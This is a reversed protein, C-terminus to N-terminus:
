LFYRTSDNRFSYPNRHPRVMKRRFFGFSLPFVGQCSNKIPCRTNKNENDLIHHYHLFVSNADSRNKGTYSVDSQCKSKTYLIKYAVDNGSQEDDEFVLVPNAIHYVEIASVKRDDIDRQPHRREFIHISINM